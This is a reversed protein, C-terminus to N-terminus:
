FALSGGWDLGGAPSPLLRVLPLTILLGAPIGRLYSVWTPAKDATGPVAGPGPAQSQHRHWLGVSYRPMQEPSLPPLYVPALAYFQQSCTEAEWRPLRTDEYRLKRRPIKSIGPANFHMSLSIGEKPILLGTLNLWLCGIDPLSSGTM